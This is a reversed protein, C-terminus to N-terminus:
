VRTEAFIRSAAREATEFYGINLNQVYAAFPKDSRRIQVISSIVAVKDFVLYRGARIQRISYHISM